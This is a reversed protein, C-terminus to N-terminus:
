QECRGLCQFAFDYLYSVRKKKGGQKDTCLYLLLLPLMGLLMPHDTSFDSPSLDRLLHLFFSAQKLELHALHTNKVGPNLICHALCTCICTIKVKQESSNYNCINLAKRSTRQKNYVQSTSTRFKQKYVSAIRLMLM